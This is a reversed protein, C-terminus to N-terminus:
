EQAWKQMTQLVKIQEEITQLKKELGQMEKESTDMRFERLEYAYRGLKKDKEYVISNEVTETLNKRYETDTLFMKIMPEYKPDSVLKIPLNVKEADIRYDQDRLKRITNNWFLPNSFKKVENMLDYRKAENYTNKWGKHKELFFHKQKELEKLEEQIKLPSPYILKPWIPSPNGISIVGGKEFYKKLAEVREPNEKVVDPFVQSFKEFSSIVGQM